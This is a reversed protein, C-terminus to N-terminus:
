NKGQQAEGKGFRTAKREQLIVRAWLQWFWKQDNRQIRGQWLVGSSYISIVSIYCILLFFFFFFFLSLLVSCELQSSSLQPSLVPSCLSPAACPSCSRHGMHPEPVAQSGGTGRLLVDAIDPTAGTREKGSGPCNWLSSVGAPCPPVPSPIPIWPSSCHRTGVDWGLERSIGWASCSVANPAPFHRARCKLLFDRQMELGKWSWNRSNNVLTHIGKGEQQWSLLSPCTFLTIWSSLFLQPRLKQHLRHTRM